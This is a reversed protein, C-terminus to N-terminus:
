GNNIEDILGSGQISNCPSRRRQRMNNGSREVTLNDITKKVEEVIPERHHVQIQQLQEVVIQDILIGQLLLTVKHRHLYIKGTKIVQFIKVM